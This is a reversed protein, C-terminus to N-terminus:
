IYKRIGDIIMKHGAECQPNPFMTFGHVAGTFRKITVEVGAKILKMAYLEAEDCLMDLEATLIIAPPLGKLQSEDAFVPSVYPDKAQEQPCYCANFIPARPDAEQGEPVRKDVSFMDLPPFDLVQCRFSIKKEKMAQM